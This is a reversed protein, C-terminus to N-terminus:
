RRKGGDDRSSSPALRNQQVIVAAFGVIMQGIPSRKHMGPQLHDVFDDHGRDEQPVDEGPMSVLRLDDVVDNIGALKPIPLTEREQRLKQRHSVELRVVPDFVRQQCKGHNLRDKGRRGQRDDSLPRLLRFEFM